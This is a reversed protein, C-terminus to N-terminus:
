HWLFPSPELVGLGKIIQDDAPYGVLVLPDVFYSLQDLLYLTFLCITPGGNLRLCSIVTFIQKFNDFSRNQSM